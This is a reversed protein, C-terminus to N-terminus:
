RGSTGAVLYVTLLIFPAGVTTLLLRVWAGQYTIALAKIWRGYSWLLSIGAAIAILWGLAPVEEFRLYFASTPLMTLSPTWSWTTISFAQGLSLSGKRYPYFIKVLLVAIAYVAATILTFILIEGLPNWVTVRSSGSIWGPDFLNKFLYDLKLNVQASHNLSAVLNGTGATILTFLILTQSLLKFRRDRIDLIFRNLHGLSRRLHHRFLQDARM